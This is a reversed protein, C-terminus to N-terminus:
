IIDRWVECLTGCVEYLTGGYKVYHGACKM